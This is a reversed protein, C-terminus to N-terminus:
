EQVTEGRVFSGLIGNIFPVTEPEEYIKALEVAENIAVKDPIDPMYLIEFMATKMIALATRSIREFKWGKSYKEVYSDLEASHEGLGLVMREIYKKQSGHPYESFVEDEEALTKYYEKDFFRELVEEPRKIDSSLEFCLRVAIERAESRTM